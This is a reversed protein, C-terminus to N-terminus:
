AGLSWFASRGLWRVGRGIMLKSEIDAQHNGPPPQRDASYTPFTATFQASIPTLSESSNLRRRIGTEINGFGASAQSSYQNSFKMYPAFANVLLTTRSTLGYELYPNVQFQKFVGGYGFSRVAGEADFSHSTAYFSSTLILQGHGQPQTWADAYLCVPSSGVLLLGACCFRSIIARLPFPFLM